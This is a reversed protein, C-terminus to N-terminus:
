QDAAPQGEEENEVSQRKTEAEEEHDGGRSARNETDTKMKAAVYDAFTLNIDFPTRRFINPPTYNNQIPWFLGDEDPTQPAGGYLDSFEALTFYFRTSALVLEIRQIEPLYKRYVDVPLFEILQSSKSKIFGVLSTSQVVEEKELEEEEEGEDEDDDHLRLASPRNSTANSQSPEQDTDHIPEPEKPALSEAILRCIIFLKEKIIMHQKGMLYEDTPTSTPFKENLFVAPIRRFTLEKTYLQSIHDEIQFVRNSLWFEDCCALLQRCFCGMMDESTELMLLTYDGMYIFLGCVPDPTFAELQCNNHLEQLKECFLDFYDRKKVTEPETEPELEEEAQEEVPETPQLAFDDTFRFTHTVTETEFDPKVPAAEPIPLTMVPPADVAAESTVETAAQSGETTSAQTIKDPPVSAAEVEVTIVEPEKKEVESVGGTSPPEQGAAPEAEVDRELCGNKALIFIRQYFVSTQMETLEADVYEVLSKRVHFTGTRKLTFCTHRTLRQTRSQRQRAATSAHRQTTRKSNSM